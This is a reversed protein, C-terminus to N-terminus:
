ATLVIKGRPKRRGGDLMEHAERVSALPLTAGVVVSLAGDALLDAIRMLRDTTVDVLFFGARVRSRAAAERDPESVASVLVGGPKLVEFSRRQTDGGVLDIVADVGRARDEFRDTEYAIADSAGLSRVFAIDAARATALVRFQARRALQVAFAGVSGAAGHILVSAGPALKAEEFLAQWATVAVVPVAAAEVFSVREPKPALKSALAIAYEANAGTFRANTAGFVREGIQFNAVGEGLVEVEGAVDVGLTLPLPQPMASKGSRIWADWPGVGSARVRVRVQGPGPEPLPADEVDIVEPGGYRHIRCAKMTVGHEGNM